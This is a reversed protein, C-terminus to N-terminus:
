KEPGRCALFVLLVLHYSFTQLLHLSQNINCALGQGKTQMSIRQNKDSDDRCGKKSVSGWWKHHHSGCMCYLEMVSNHVHIYIYSITNKKRGLTRTSIDVACVAKM